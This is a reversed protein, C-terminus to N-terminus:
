QFRGLHWLRKRKEVHLESVDIKNAAHKADTVGEGAGKRYYM